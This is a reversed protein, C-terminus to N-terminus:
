DVGTDFGCRQHYVMFRLGGQKAYLAALRNAEAESDVRARTENTEHCIVDYFDLLRGAGRRLSIPIPKSGPPAKSIDSYGKIRGDLGLPDYGMIRDIERDRLPNTM